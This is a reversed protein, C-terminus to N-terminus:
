VSSLLLLAQIPKFGAVDLIKTLLQSPSTAVADFTRANREKWLTWGVLLFLSDFGRRLVKLVGKRNQIWWSMVHEENVTVFDQLCLRNLCLHWVEKSFCCGLLIHDITEPLQDCM